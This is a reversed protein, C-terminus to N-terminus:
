SRRTKWALIFTTTYPVPQKELPLSPPPPVSVGRVQRFVGEFVGLPRCGVLNIIAAETLHEDRSVDVDPVLPGFWERAAALAADPLPLGGAPGAGADGLPTAAAGADPAAPVEAAAEQESHPAPGSATGLSPVATEDRNGGVAAADAAGSRPPVAGADRAGGAVSGALLLAAPADDTGDGEAM